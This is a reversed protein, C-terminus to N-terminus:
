ADIRRGAEDGEQRAHGPARARRHGRAELEVHRHAEVGVLQHDIERAKLAPSM